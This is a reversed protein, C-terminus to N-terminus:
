CHKKIFQVNKAYSAPIIRYIVNDKTVLYNDVGQLNLDDHEIVMRNALSYLWPVFGQDIMKAEYDVALNLAKDYVDLYTVSILSTDFYVELEDTFNSRAVELQEESIMLIKASLYHAEFIEMAVGMRTGFKKNLYGKLDYIDSMFSDINVGPLGLSCELMENVLKTYRIDLNAISDRNEETALKILIDAVDTLKAASLGELAKRLAISVPDIIPTTLAFYSRYASVDNIKALVKTEFIAEELYAVGITDPNVMTTDAEEQNQVAEVTDLSSSNLQAVSDITEERKAILDINYVDDGVKLRHANRDMNTELHEVLVDNVKTLIPTHTDKMYVSRFPQEKSTKWEGTVPITLVPEVSVAQVPEPVSVTPRNNAFRDNVRDNVAGSVSSNMMTTNQNFYGAQNIMPQQMMGVPQQMMPQQMPMQQYGMQQPMPQMMPQQVNMSNYMSSIRNIVEQYRMSNSRVAEQLQRDLFTFLQNNGIALVSTYLTLATEVAKDLGQEPLNFSGSALDLALIDAALKVVEAYNPNNFGNAAVTNYVYTRTYTQGATRGLSNAINVAIAPVLHAVGPMVAINLMVPPGSYSNIPYMIADFRAQNQYM